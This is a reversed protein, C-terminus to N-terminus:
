KKPKEWILYGHLEPVGYWHETDKVIKVPVEPILKLFLQTIFSIYLPDSFISKYLNQIYEPNTVKSKLNLEAKKTTPLLFFKSGYMLLYVM